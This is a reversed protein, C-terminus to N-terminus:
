AAAANPATAREGALELSALSIRRGVGTLVLASRWLIWV